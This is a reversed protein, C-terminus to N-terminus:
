GGVAECRWALGLMDLHEGLTRKEGACDPCFRLGEGGAEVALFWGDGDAAASGYVAEGCGDCVIAAEDRGADEEEERIFSRIREREGATM